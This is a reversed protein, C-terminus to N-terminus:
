FHESPKNEILDFVGIEGNLATIMAVLDNEFIRVVCNPRVLISMPSQNKDVIPNITEIVGLESIEPKITVYLISGPEVIRNDCTLYLKYIRNANLEVFKRKAEYGYPIIQYRNNYLLERVNEVDVSVYVVQNLFYYKGYVDIYIFGM